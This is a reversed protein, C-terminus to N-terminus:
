EYKLTEAPNQHATKFTQAGITILAILIATIAAVFFIWPGMQTRYEFSELWDRMFYYALLSAVLSSILITVTFEWSVLRVIERLSAGLVKRIGIEKTRQQLVFTALGLLGICAILITLISFTLYVRAKRIEQSYVREFYDDIFIASFPRNKEISEYVTQISALAGSVEAANVKLFLYQPGWDFQPKLFLAFPKVPEYLSLMNFDEVVGIVTFKDEPGAGTKMSISKGLPDKWGYKKVLTENVLIAKQDTPFGTSFNRGKLLELEMTELYDYDVSAMSVIDRHEEKQEDVIIFTAGSDGTAPLVNTATVASVQPLATLASKMIEKPDSKALRVSLVQEPNYGLDKQTIYNLQKHVVLTCIILGISIIFQFSVLVRRINRGAGSGISASKLVKTPKFASLFLAPYLGALGGLIIGLVILLVLLEPNQLFGIEVTKGTLQNFLGTCMEALFGGLMVSVLALMVSETLFQIMVNSRRAGIVKRVGIEKARQISRATALNMYNIAALLLMFFAILSFAYLASRSGGNEQGSDSSLWIDTVPYLRLQVKSNEPLTPLIHNDVIRDLKAELTSLDTGSKLRVYSVHGVRNWQFTGMVTNSLFGARPTYHSNKPMDEIVGSIRRVQDDIVLSRGVLSTIEGFVKRALEASIVFDTPASLAKAPDGELFKVEMIELFDNDAYALRNEIWQKDKYKLVSSGVRHTRGALLIEPISAKLEPSLLGSGTIGSRQRGNIESEQFVRYVESKHQYFQDYSLEVQVFRGLLTAMAIGISLGFVNIFTFGKHKLLSRFATKFYNKVM